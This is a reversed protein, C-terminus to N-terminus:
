TAGTEEILGLNKLMALSTAVPKHLEAESQDLQRALHNAVSAEDGRPNLDKLITLIEATFADLLHTEGSAFEFCATHDGVQELLADQAALSLNLVGFSLAPHIM